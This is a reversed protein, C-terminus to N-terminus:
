KGGFLQDSSLVEDRTIADIEAEHMVWYAQLHSALNKQIFGVYERAKEESIVINRTSFFFILFHSLAQQIIATHSQSILILFKKTMIKSASEHVLFENMLVIWETIWKRIDAHVSSEDFETLTEYRPLALLLKMKEKKGLTDAVYYTADPYLLAIFALVGRAPINSSLLVSVDTILDAYYADQIFRSLILFLKQNDNKAQKEDRQIRKLQAQTRAAREQYQEWSERAQEPLSWSELSDLTNYSEM